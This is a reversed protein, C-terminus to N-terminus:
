VFPQDSIALDYDATTSVIGNGTVNGGVGNNLRVPFAVGTATGGTTSYQPLAGVPATHTVTVSSNAFASRSTSFTIVAGGASITGTLAPGGIPDPGITTGNINLVGDMNVTVAFGPAAVTAGGLPMWAGSASSTFTFTQHVFAAPTGAPTTDALVYERSAVIAAATPTFVSFGSATAHMQCASTMQALGVGAPGALDIISVSASGAVSIIGDSQTGGAAAGSTGAVITVGDAIATAWDGASLPDTGPRRFIFPATLARGELRGYGSRATWDPVFSTNRRKSRCNSKVLHM